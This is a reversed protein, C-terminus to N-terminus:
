GLIEAATLRYGRAYAGADMIRRSEPQVQTIVVAGSGTAVTVGDRAMEVVQGPKGEARHEIIHAQWVKIRQGDRHTFAGPAPNLARVLNCIEGAPRSWVILGEEPRIPPALTAKSEDQPVRPASGAEILSVTRVLLGAGEVALRESLSGATDQPSIPVPQQLVIDGADLRAAM